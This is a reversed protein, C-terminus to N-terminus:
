SVSWMDIKSGRLIKPWNRSKTVRFEIKRMSGQVLFSFSVCCQFPGLYPRIRPIFVYFKLSYLIIM